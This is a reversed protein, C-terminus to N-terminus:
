RPATTSLRSPETGGASRAARNFMMSAILASYPWASEDAAWIWESHRINTM